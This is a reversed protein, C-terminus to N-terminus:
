NKEEEEGLYSVEDYERLIAEAIAPVLHMVNRENVPVINGKADKADWERLIRKLKSEKYHKFSWKSNGAINEVTADEQIQNNLEWTLELAKFNLVIYKKKEEETMKEKKFESETFADYRHGTKKWYVKLEILSNDTIFM